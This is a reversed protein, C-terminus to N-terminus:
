REIYRVLIDVDDPVLTVQGMNFPLSITMRGVKSMSIKLEESLTDIDILGNDDIIGLAKVVQNSSLEGITNEINRKALGIGTSIIVKAPTAMQNIIEHDIYDIIGGVVQEKTYNM